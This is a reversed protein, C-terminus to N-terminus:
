IWPLESALLLAAACAGAAALTFRGPLTYRTAHRRRARRQTTPTPRRRHGRAHTLGMAATTSRGRLHTQTHM